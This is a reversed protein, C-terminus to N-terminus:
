MKLFLATNTSCQITTKTVRTFPAVQELLVLVIRFPLLLM